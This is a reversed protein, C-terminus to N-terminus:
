GLHAWDRPVVVVEAPARLARALQRTVPYDDGEPVVLKLHAPSDGLAGSRELLERADAAAPVLDPDVGVSCALVLPSGDPGTGVAVAPARRLLDARPLPPAVARLNAAGALAPSAVVVSRLWRERALTNAPSRGGGAVRGGRVVAVVRDLAEGLPEDPRLESTAERDHRGVGVEVHWGGGTADPVVRAVELGLVEGTIVGGEVIVETGHEALVAEWARAAAPPELPAPVPAPVAPTLGRGSVAWVTPPVAWLRARRALIGVVGGGDGASGGGASGGGAPAGGGGAGAPGAGGGGGEDVLLHLEGVGHRRAWVLAASLTGLAGRDDLVWGRGGAPEVLGAGGAFGVEQRAGDTM